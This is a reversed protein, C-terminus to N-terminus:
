KLSREWVGSVAVTMGSRTLERMLLRGWVWTEFRRLRLTLSIARLGGLSVRVKKVSPDELPGKVPAPTKMVPGLGLLSPVISTWRARAVVSPSLLRPSIAAMWAAIVMASMIERWKGM